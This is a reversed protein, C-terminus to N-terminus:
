PARRILALTGDALGIVVARSGDDAVVAADTVAKAPLPLAAIEHPRPKFGILRLRARDRSPVALDAVGDGDFDAVASMRIARTGAVHNSADPLEALKDLRKGDYEWLELMGVTHPQRVLAITNNNGGAGTFDAIGAIDLWLRPAGPPPTEAAIEYRKRRLAVVALSAGARLSTKVVVVEDHGDGDLDAIRPELDEFVADPGLSVTQREGDRREIVLAGAEIKDGLLGHGYRDTPAAFWARAIDGSGSAVRGDPLAGDPRAFKPAEDDFALTAGAAGIVLRYWLGGAEIEVAKGITEVANVRAPTPVIEVRWEAAQAAAAFFLFAAVLVLRM